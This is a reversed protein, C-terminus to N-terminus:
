VSAVDNLISQFGRVKAFTPVLITRLLFRHSVSSSHILGEGGRQKLSVNTNWLTVNIKSIVPNQDFLSRMRRQGGRGELGRFYRVEKSIKDKIKDM